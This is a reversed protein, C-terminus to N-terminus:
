CCANGWRLMLALYCCCRRPLVSLLHTPPLSITAHTCVKKTAPQSLEVYSRLVDFASLPVDAPIISPGTAKVTMVADWPLGFHAMIRKVSKESNLPLVALYDGCEYTMNTPLEIEMHWKAPEGKSTLLRNEQVEALSVDYRLSSARANTSIEVHMAKANEDNNPQGPSLNPWLSTDLWDEFDGQLNGKAADTFGGPALSRAGFKSLLEDTLKPIRHFTQSWDGSKGTLHPSSYPSQSCGLLITLLFRSVTVAAL